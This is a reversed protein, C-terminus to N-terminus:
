WSTEAEVMIMLLKEYKERDEASGSDMYAKRFEDIADETNMYVDAKLILFCEGSTKEMDTIRQGALAMKYYAYAWELDEDSLTGSTKYKVLAENVVMMALETIQESLSGSSEGTALGTACVMLVLVMVVAVMRKM